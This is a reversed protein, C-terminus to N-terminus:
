KLPLIIRIDDDKYQNNCCQSPGLSGLVAFDPGSSPIRYDTDLFYDGGWPDKPISPIYPGSWNTYPTGADDILLGVTSDSLDYVENGGGNNIKGITQHDPWEGTDTALAIIATQIRKLDSMAEAIKSKEIYKYYAPVAIGTLIAIVGMVVMMEILSFGGESSRSRAMGTWIPLFHAM